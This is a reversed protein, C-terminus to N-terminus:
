KWVIKEIYILTSELIGNRADYPISYTVRTRLCIKKVGSVDWCRCCYDYGIERLLIAVKKSVLM